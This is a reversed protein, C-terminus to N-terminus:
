RASLDRTGRRVVLALALPAAVLLAISAVLGVAAAGTGFTFLLAHVGAFALISGCWLTLATLILWTVLPAAPGPHGSRRRAALLRELLLVIALLVGVQVGISDM